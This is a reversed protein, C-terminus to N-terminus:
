TPPEVDVPANPEAVGLEITVTAGRVSGVATALEGVGLGFVITARVRRLLGDDEGVLLEFSSSKTADRVREADDGDLHPADEGGLDAALDALDNLAHVPDLRGTTRRVRDGKLTITGTERPEVVWDGLDLGGLAGDGEGRLPALQDPRLETTEGGARVWARQGTSVFTSTARRDGLLKTYTLEATPLQGDETPAAFPGELQFGVPGAGGASASVRVDLVGSRIRGVDGDPPDDDGCGALVVAAAVVVAVVPRM